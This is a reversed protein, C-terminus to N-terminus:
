KEQEKITVVIFDKKDKIYEDSHGKVYRKSDNKLVGCSVLADFITKHGYGSVNDPDRKDTKEHWEFDVKVPKKIAPIGAQKIYVACIMDTENKFRNGVHASRRCALIYENLSPLKEEIIFKYEKM